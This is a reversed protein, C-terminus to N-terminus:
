SPEDRHMFRMGFSVSRFFLACQGKKFGMLTVLGTFLVVWVWYPVSPIVAELYISALLANV